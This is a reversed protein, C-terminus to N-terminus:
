HLYVAGAKDINLARDGTAGEGLRRVTVTLTNNGAVALDYKLEVRGAAAIPNILVYLPLPKVNLRTTAAVPIKQVAREETLGYELILGSQNVIYVNLPLKPNIRAVPQWFGPKYTSAPPNEALIPVAMGLILWLSVSFLPTFDFRHLM